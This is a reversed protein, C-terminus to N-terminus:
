LNELNDNLFAEFLIFGEKPKYAPVEHGADHVTAFTLRSKNSNPTKFKTIYGSTMGDVIWDKWFNKKEYNFGLDFIWNQTYVTGCVGDVDGSYVMMKFNPVSKDELIEKYYHITSRLKDLMHYKTTRSCEEWKIDSKVNLTEKVDMRNLYTNAYNDTCPQYEDLNPISKHLYSFPNSGKQSDFADKLYDSFTAQQAQVCVPFELAYPNLNGIIESFRVFYTTCVSDDLMKKPDTCDEAIYKDWLPKPLLNFNNYTEMQAGSGSYYDVYPNGVAMGTFNIRNSPDVQKNYNIIELSLEPMYHGGYSESTIYVPNTKLHPFVDFFSKIIQLNDKAAQDDGINYESSDDSYSFGVGTPQELFVMNAIKNWAWENPKLTGDEMPRFPGQETMFGILGSCGPGGNTWFVVPASESNEESEVFWYHIHKTSNTLNLYGSFQNFEIDYNLGPLEKVQNLVATDTYIATSFGCFFGFFLSQLFLMNFLKM